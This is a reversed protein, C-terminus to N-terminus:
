LLSTRLRSSHSPSVTLVILSLRISFIPGLMALRKWMRCVSWQAWVCGRASKLLLRLLSGCFSFTRRLFRRPSTAEGVWMFRVECSLAYGPLPTWLRVLSTDNLPTWGGVKLTSHRTQNKKKLYNRDGRLSFQMFSPKQLWYGLMGRHCYEWLCFMHTKRGRRLLFSGRKDSEEVM